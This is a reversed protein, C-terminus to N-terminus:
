SKTKVSPIVVVLVFVQRGADKIDMCYEVNRVITMAAAQVVQAMEISHYQPFGPELIVEHRCGWAM